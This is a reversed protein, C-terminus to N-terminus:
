MMCRDCMLVHEFAFLLQMVIHIDVSARALLSDIEKKRLNSGTAAIWEFHPQKWKEECWILPSKTTVNLRMSYTGPYVRLKSSSHKKEINIPQRKQTVQCIGTIQVSDNSQWTFKLYNRFGYDRRHFAKVRLFNVFIVPFRQILPPKQVKQWHRAKWLRKWSAKKRTNKRM